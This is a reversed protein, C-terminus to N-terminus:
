EPESEDKDQEARHLHRESLDLDSWCREDGLHARARRAYVLAEVRPAAKGRVTSLAASAM